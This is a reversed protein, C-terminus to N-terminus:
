DGQFKMRQVETWPVSLVSNTQTIQLTIYLIHKHIITMEKDDYMVSRNIQLKSQLQPNSRVVVGSLYSQIYPQLAFGQGVFWAAIIQDALQTELVLKLVVATLIVMVALWFSQLRLKVNDVATKKQENTQNSNSLVDLYKASAKKMLSALVLINLGAFLLAGANEVDSVIGLGVSMRALNTHKIARKHVEHKKNLLGMYLMMESTMAAQSGMSPVSISIRM